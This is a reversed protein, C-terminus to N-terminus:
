RREVQFNPLWHLAKPLYWNRKGLLQMAAPVMVSRVITADLLVAVALGFGFQQLMVLDGSAFASFVAVMILAAGTIIGATSRLGFAVSENNNGTRDFRERIRSLLFVHYDMSLGFLISFLFLPIWAEIRDVRQFGLLDHGVGKQFVLVLLGYAAGVSLLNMLIAKAPIVLSRFVVTLLIFSTGLVLAFVFPTFSNTLDVFDVNFATAGTVLVEAQVGDFAQPIYHSRLRRIANFAEDSNADGAVPVSLLALDGNPNTVLRAPGFIGDSQLNAKLREISEMVPPSNIQGDIVVEAPVAPGTSFEEQLILFGQKSQFSDPLTSIGAAGTKIDFFPIASAILLAATVSISLVPYQMVRVTVWGWFGGNKNRTTSGKLRILPLRLANVRDGMLGLVAPLLTLSALVTFLVVLIAGTAMSRFLTFPLILLGSLALVVTMGSFLVTRGATAGIHAIAEGKEVGRRREERFRSLILLSYDIGVALGMVSIMNTVFYVLPFAQGVLATAGLAIVITALALVLPVVAAALAGFVLILIIFAVPIGLLEASQLDKESVEQFDRNISADGTLFVQFSSAAEARRLVARLLGIQDSAEFYDGAMALPLITAHRDASVLSKDSTLYYNVGGEVIDSGLSMIDRHLSTVFDQFATNDVTLTKSRVIVIESAKRPGRLREKLLNDAKKSEPNTTFDSETTLANPLLTIILIGAM